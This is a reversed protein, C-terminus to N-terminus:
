KQSTQVEVTHFLASIDLPEFYYVELAYASGTGNAGTDLSQSTQIAALGLAQWQTWEDDWIPITFFGGEIASEKGFAVTNEIYVHLPDGPLETQKADVHGIIWHEGAIAFGITEVGPLEWQTTLPGYYRVFSDDKDTLLARYEMEGSEQSVGSIVTAYMGDSLRLHAALYVTGEYLGVCAEDPIHRIAPRCAPLFLSLAILFILVKKM